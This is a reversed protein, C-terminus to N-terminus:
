PGGSISLSRFTVTHRVSARDYFLRSTGACLPAERPMHHNLPEPTPRTPSSACPRAARKREATRERNQKSREDPLRWGHQAEDLLARRAAQQELTSTPASEKRAQSDVAPHGFRGTPIAEAMLREYEYPTM